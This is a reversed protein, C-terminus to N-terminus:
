RRCKKWWLNNGSILLIFYIGSTCEEMEWLQLFVIFFKAENRQWVSFFRMLGRSVMSFLYQKGSTLGAGTLPEHPWYYVEPAQQQQQLELGDAWGKFHSGNRQAGSTWKEEDRQHTHEGDDWYDGATRSDREACNLTRLQENCGRFSVRIKAPLTWTAEITQEFPM